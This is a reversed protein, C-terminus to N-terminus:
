TKIGRRNAEAKRKEKDEDIRWKYLKKESKYLQKALAMYQDKLNDGWRAEGERGPTDKDEIIDDIVQYNDELFQRIESKELQGEPTKFLKGYSKKIQEIISVYLSQSMEGGFAKLFEQQEAPTRKILEALEKNLLAELGEGKQQAEAIKQVKQILAVIRDHSEDDTKYLPVSMVASYLQEATLRDMIKDRNNEIFQATNEQGKDVLQKAYLPARDPNLLEQQPIGPLYPAAKKMFDILTSPDGPNQMLAQLYGELDLLTDTGEFFTKQVDDSDPDYKLEPDVGIIKPQPAPQAPQTQQTNSTM